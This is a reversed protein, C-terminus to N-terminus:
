NFVERVFITARNEPASVGFNARAAPDNDPNDGSSCFGYWSRLWPTGSSQSDPHTGLCSRDKSNGGANLALNLAVDLYGKSGATKTLKLQDEGNILALDNNVTGSLTGSLAVASRLIKTYKDQSNWTWNTGNWYEARVTMPVVANAGGFANFLRLRGTRIITPSEIGDKSSTIGDIARLRLDQPPTKMKKFTFTTTIEAEGQGEDKGNIKKVFASGQIKKVDLEGIQADIESDLPNRYAKLVVEATSPAELMYNYTTTAATKDAAYARAIVKVKAMPQASYWFPRAEPSYQIDFHDPVFVANCTTSSDPRINSSLYALPPSSSAPNTDLYARFQGVGVESWSMDGTSAQGAKFKSIFGETFTGDRGATPSCKKLTIRVQPPPTELGFNVTTQGNANKATVDAQFAVGAKFPQNGKAAIGFSAPAVTFSTSGAMLPSTLNASVNLTGVENYILDPAAVGQADFDLSVLTASTAGCAIDTKAINLPLRSINATDQGPNIYGCSLSIDRKGSFGPVCKNTTDDKQVAAITLKQSIGSLHDPVNLMFASDRFNLDCSASKGNSCTYLDSSVYGDASLKVTGATTVRLPISSSSSDKPIEFKISIGSDTKLNGSVGSTYAICADGSDSDTCAYLTITAPTCTLATGSHAIRVHHLTPDTPPPKGCGYFNTSGARCIGTIYTNKDVKLHGGVTVDGYYISDKAFNASGGVTINGWLRANMAVDLQGGVTLTMTANLNKKLDVNGGVTLDFPYSGHNHDDNVTTLDKHATFNGSVQLRIPGNLVLVADKDLDINGCNYDQGSGTCNFPSKKLDAPLNYTDALAPSAAACLLFALPVAAFKPLLSTLRSDM